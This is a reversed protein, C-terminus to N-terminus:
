PPSECSASKGLQQDGASSNRLLITCCLLALTGGQPLPSPSDSGRNYGRREVYFWEGNRPCYFTVPRGTERSSNKWRFEGDRRLQVSVPSSICLLLSQRWQHQQQQQPLSASSLLCVVFLLRFSLTWSCSSKGKFNGVWLDLSVLHVVIIYPSIGTNM